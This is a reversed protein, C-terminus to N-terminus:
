FVDLLHKVKYNTKSATTLFQDENLHHHTDLCGLVGKSVKMDHSRDFLMRWELDKQLKDEVRGSPYGPGGGDLFSRIEEVSSWCYIM